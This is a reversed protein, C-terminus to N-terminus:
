PEQARLVKRILEALQKMSFPKMVLEVGLDVAVAATIKESFGTCLIVPIDPRIQRIEQFLDTGTLKPMTYDTIILDFENPRFRFIEIARLSNTEPTVTYGLRELIATESELVMQEDDILLIRETGTPPAQGTEVVVGTNAEVAPIYICFTSGKGPESRVTAAGDHRKIIGHVVALGLGSGKGVEKTTFYPDFIRELTAKDMGSGTDSVCLKLYPGPKLDVISQDTLDSKSLDVHSLEVELIGKDDMAHAANTCLNMLVQHIQTPDALAVGM